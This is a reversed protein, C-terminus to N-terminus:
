NVNQIMYEKIKTNEELISHCKKELEKDRTMGMIRFLQIYKKEEDQPLHLNM